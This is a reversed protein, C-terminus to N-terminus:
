QKPVQVQKEILDMYEVLKKTLYVPIGNEMCLRWGSWKALEAIDYFIIGESVLEDMAQHIEKYNNKVLNSIQSAKLIQHKQLAMIIQQKTTPTGCKPCGPKRKFFIGDGGCTTCKGTNAM